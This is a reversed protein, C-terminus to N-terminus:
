IRTASGFHEAVRNGTLQASMSLSRAGVSRYLEAGDSLRQIINISQYERSKKTLNFATRATLVIWGAWATPNRKMIVPMAYSGQMIQREQVPLFRMLNQHAKLAMDNADDVRDRKLYERGLSSCFRAASEFNLHDEDDSIASLLATEATQYGFKGSVFDLEAGHFLFELASNGKWCESKVKTWKLYPNESSEVAIDFANGAAYVSPLYVDHETKWGIRNREMASAWRHENQMQNILYVPDDRQLKGYLTDFYTLMNTDLAHFAAYSGADLATAIAWSIYGPLCNLKELTIAFASAFHAAQAGAIKSKGSIRLRVVYSEILNEIVVRDKLDSINYGLERLAIDLKKEPHHSAYETKRHKLNASDKNDKEQAAMEYDSFLSFLNSIEKDVYEGRGHLKINKVLAEFTRRQMHQEGDFVHGIARQESATTLLSKNIKSNKPNNLALNLAIQLLELFAYREPFSPENSIKRNFLQM